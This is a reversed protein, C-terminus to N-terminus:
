FNQLSHKYLMTHQQQHTHLQYFVVQPKLSLLLHSSFCVTVVIKQHQSRIRQRTNWSHVQRKIEYSTSNM